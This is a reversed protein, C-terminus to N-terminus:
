APQRWRTRSPLPTATIVLMAMGAFLAVDIFVGLRFVGIAAYVFTAAAVMLSWARSHHGDAILTVGAIAALTPCPLLGLPAAMLYERWHTTELFHPYMWGFAVLAIGALVSLPSGISVREGPLDRAISLLAMSLAAFVAANFPNHSIWALASVSLLPLLLLTAFVRVSINWRVAMAILLAAFYVHWLVAVARWENAISTLGSLIENASPM